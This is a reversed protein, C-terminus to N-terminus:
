LVIFFPLLYILQQQDFLLTKEAFLSATVIVTMVGDIYFFFALLFRRLNKERLVERLIRRFGM